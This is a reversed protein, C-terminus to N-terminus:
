KEALLQGNIALLQTAPPISECLTAATVTGNYFSLDRPQNSIDLEQITTEASFIIGTADLILAESDKLKYIINNHLMKQATANEFNIDEQILDGDDCGNLFM